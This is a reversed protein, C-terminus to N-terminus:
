FGTQCSCTYCLKDKVPIVILLLGFSFNHKKNILTICISRGMFCLLLESLSLLVIVQCNLQSIVMKVM